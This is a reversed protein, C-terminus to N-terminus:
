AKAIVLISDNEELETYVECLLVEYNMEFVDVLTEQEHYKFYMGKMEMEENGKWFSHCVIGGENLRLTQHLLSKELETLTLHHLVKNSYICDFTRDTNLHIADLLLVDAEPQKQLYRDLFEQSLDSGTAEYQQSLLELDVGPGMGLELVSANKGLFGHLKDIIEKGDYGKAMKIYEDVNKSNEYFNEPAQDMAKVSIRETTGV